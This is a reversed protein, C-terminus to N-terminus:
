QDVPPNVFIPLNSHAMENLVPINKEALRCCCCEVVDVINWHLIARLVAVCNMEYALQIQLRM